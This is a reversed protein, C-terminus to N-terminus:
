NTGPAAFVIRETTGGIDIERLKSRQSVFVTAAYTQDSKALTAPVQITKKGSTFVAKGDQMEVKYDGAKLETRGVSFTDSLTVDYPSAAVALGAALTSFILLPTMVKKM